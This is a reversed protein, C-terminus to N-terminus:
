RIIDLLSNYSSGMGSRVGTVTVLKCVVRNGVCLVFSSLTRLLILFFFTAHRVKYQRLVIRLPIDFIM